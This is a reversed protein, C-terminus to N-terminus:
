RGPTDCLRSESFMHPSRCAEFVLSAATMAAIMLQGRDVKDRTDAATLLYRTAAHHDEYGAVIRLAPIGASLFSYHDSNAQVPFIPILPTGYTTGSAEVFRVIDHRGGALAYLRPSGVVTDLNIVIRIKEREEATLSDVYLKSGYLGWEEFTFFIVRLGTRLSPLIAALQRVVELAVAVGSANDMASESLHHGDIHACLVVYQNTQGPIDLIINEGRIDQKEVSIDIRVRTEGRRCKRAITEGAEHSVGMSPIDTPRSSGSSGTIVGVGPISNAILFAAAGAEKAWTYKRSRHISYLSFPYEHRVLVAKGQIQSERLQFDEQAGRGIDLIELELSNAEPSLVLSTAQLEQEKGSLLTLNSEKREWGIYPFKMACTKGGTDQILRDHLFKRAALEGVSGAFRGGFDCITELDEALSKSRWIRGIVEDFEIM